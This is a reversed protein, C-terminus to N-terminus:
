TSIVRRTFDNSGLFYKKNSQLLVYFEEMVEDIIDTDVRGLRSMASGIRKIEFENMHKFIESAIEEGFALLLIAAKQPGTYKAAM